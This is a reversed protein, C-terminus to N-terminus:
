IFKITTLEKIAIQINNAYLERTGNKWREIDGTTPQENNEDVLNSWHLIENNENPEARDFNFPLYLTNNFHNEIAERPSNAKQKSTQQYHNVQDVEGNVYDDIYVTHTTTVEYTKM